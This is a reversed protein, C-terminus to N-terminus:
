LHVVHLALEGDLERWEAPLNADKAGWGDTGGPRESGVSGNRVLSFVFCILWYFGDPSEIFSDLVQLHTNVQVPGQKGM